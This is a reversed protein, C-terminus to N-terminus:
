SYTYRQHYLEVFTLFISIILPGYFIGAVGFVSLGGLISLFVLTSNIKVRNGVFKPKFWNEVVLAVLSCYIFLVVASISNGIIILYICAPLYVIIIGVLPIFALIVMMTTWLAISQLGAMWFGIGALGGQILGGIGNGVLTVYNIQVFREFVLEEEDDPLPSFALLFEKFRSGNVLLSFIVVMMILFDIVFSVINGILSNLFDFITSSASKTADLLLGKVSEVSFEMDAMLFLDQLIEDFYKVGFLLSELEEDTLYNNITQFLMLAEELLRIVIFVSPLVIALIIILCVLVASLKRRKLRRDFFDTVPNFSGALIGAFIIATIFPWLMVGILGVLVLYFFFFVFISHKSESM